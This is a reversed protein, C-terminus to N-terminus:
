KKDCLVDVIAGIMDMQKDPGCAEGETLSAIWFSPTKDSAYIDHVLELSSSRDVSKGYTIIVGLLTSNDRAPQISFQYKFALKEIQGNWVSTYSQLKADIILYRENNEVKTKIIYDPTYFANRTKFPVTEKEHNLSLSTSRRLSIGNGLADSYRQGWVVPQYYLVIQENSSNEFVFTNYHDVAYYRPDTVPYHFNKSQKSNFVYGKQEIGEALKFLVYYEYLLHNVMLPLM